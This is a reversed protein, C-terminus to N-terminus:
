HCHEKGWLRRVAAQPRPTLFGPTTSAASPGHPSAAGGAPPLPSATVDGARTLTALAAARTNTCVNLNSTTVIIIYSHMRDNPNYFLCFFIYLYNTAQKM